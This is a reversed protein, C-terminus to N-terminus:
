YSRPEWPANTTLFAALKKSEARRTKRMLARQPGSEHLNREEESEPIVDPVEIPHKHRDKAVFTLFATAAIMREGSMLDEAIVKM